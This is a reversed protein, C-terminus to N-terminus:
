AGTEAKLPNLTYVLFHDDRVWGLGRYLRQATENDRATQLMLEVAGTERGLDAAAGLLARAIGGGRASEAVFLDNLIWSRAQSLSAFAPYLQVFGVPHGTRWALFIVSEGREIRDLLFNHVRAEDVTRGYFRLYGSFLPLLADVDEAEARRICPDSYKEAM